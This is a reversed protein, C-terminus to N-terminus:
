RRNNNNKIFVDNITVSRGSVNNKKRTSGMPICFHPIKEAVEMGLLQKYIRTTIRRSPYYVM